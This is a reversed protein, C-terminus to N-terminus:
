KIVAEVLGGVPKKKDTTEGMLSLNKLTLGCDVLLNEVNGRPNGSTDIGFIWPEGSKKLANAGIRVFLSGEGTIFSKSYFDFAIVSDKSSISAVTKM